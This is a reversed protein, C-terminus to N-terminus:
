SSIFVFMYVYSMSFCVHFHVIFMYLDINFQITPTTPCNNLDLNTSQRVFGVIALINVNHPQLLVICQVYASANENRANNAKKQYRILKHSMVTSKM